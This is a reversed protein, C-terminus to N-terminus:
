ARAEHNDNATSFLARLHLAARVPLSPRLRKALDERIGQCAPCEVDADTRCRADVYLLPRSCV